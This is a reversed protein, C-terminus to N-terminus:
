DLMHAILWSGDPQLELHLWRVSKDSFQMGYAARGAPNERLRETVLAPVAPDLQTFYGDLTLYAGDKWQVVMDAYASSYEDASMGSAQFAQREVKWVSGQLKRVGPVLLEAFEEQRNFAVDSFFNAAASACARGTESSLRITPVTTSTTAPPLAIEGSLLLGALYEALREGRNKSVLPTHVGSSALSGSGLNITTNDPLWALLQWQGEDPGDILVAEAAGPVDITTRPREATIPDLTRDPSHFITCRLWPDHGGSGFSLSFVGSDEIEEAKRIPLEVDPLFAVILDALHRAAPNSVYKPGPYSHPWTFVGQPPPFTTLTSSSGASATGSTSSPKVDPTPQTASESLGWYDSGPQKRPTRTGM